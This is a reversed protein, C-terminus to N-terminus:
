RQWVRDMWGDRPDDILSGRGGSGCGGKDGESIEGSKPKPVTKRPCRLLLLPPSFRKPFDAGSVRDVSEPTAKM